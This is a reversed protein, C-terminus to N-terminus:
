IMGNDHVRALMHHADLPTPATLRPNPNLGLHPLSPRMALARPECPRREGTRGVGCCLLQASCPGPLLSRPPSPLPARRCPLTALAARRVQLVRVREPVLFVNQSKLDRHLIKKDQCTHLQTMVRVRVRVRVRLRLRLRVRVRVRARVCACACACSPALSRCTSGFVAMEWQRRLAFLGGTPTPPPPRPVQHLYRLAEILQAMWDEVQARTFLVGAERACKVQSVHGRTIREGRLARM